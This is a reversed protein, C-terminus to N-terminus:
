EYVFVTYPESRFKREMHSRVVGWDLGGLGCGLKSMAIVGHSNDWFDDSAINLGDQIWEIRSPERWHWETPFLLFDQRHARVLCPHGIYLDGSRLMAQYEADLDPFREKAEKALGKGMVGVCNVPIVYCDAERDFMNGTVYEIM